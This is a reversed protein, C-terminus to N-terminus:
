SVVTDGAFNVTWHGRGHADHPIGWTASQCHEIDGDPQVSRPPGLLEFVEKRSMGCKVKEYAASTAGPNRNPTGCGAMVAICLALFVNKINCGGNWRATRLQKNRM